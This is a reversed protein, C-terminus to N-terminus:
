RLRAAGAPAGWVETQPHFGYWAFWLAVHGPLRPLPADGETGAPPALSEETVQWSRGAEDQLTMAEKGSQFTHGDRRYVRVAGSDPTSLLIVDTDGLRDNTVSHAVLKTLPWAKARDGLSLGFVEESDALLRSKKWLPFSVGARAQDAAGPTYRYGWRAGYRAALQLVTTDPHLTRWEGWTTLTMAIPDLRAPPEASPGFVAEGTMQLWLTRTERDLMLKNSRYLLGSTGFTRREGDPAKAAFALGSGCLACYSVVIPQRGLIDNLMEHWSLYRLPYARREGGLSVGFVQEREDLGHASAASVHPPDDLSPIGELKVGGWLIEEPRIRAPTGAAFLDRYRPDIKAFLEGKWALYGPAPALNESRGVVEVWDHYRSGPDEGTLKRLAALLPGREEEHVFFLADVLGPVLSREGSAAIKHAAAERRAAPNGSVAERILDYGKPPESDSSRAGLLAVSLLLTLPLRRLLTTREV